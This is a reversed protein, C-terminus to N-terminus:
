SYFCPDLNREDSLDVEVAIEFGLDHDPRNWVLDQFNSTRKRVAEQLGMTVFEGLFGVADLLTSKGAANPGVLIQFDDLEVEVHRFCRYGLAEIRRLM